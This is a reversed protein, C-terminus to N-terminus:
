GGINVTENSGDPATMTVSENGKVSPKPNVLLRDLVPTFVTLSFVFERGDRILQSSGASADTWKGSEEIRYAGPILIHVAQRVAHYLTRTSDFDDLPDPPDASGWCRVEFTFDERAIARQNREARLEQATGHSSVNTVSFRSSVPVFMIRPPASQAFQISRGVLIQGDSLPPYGADDLSQVVQDSISKIIRSLPGGSM